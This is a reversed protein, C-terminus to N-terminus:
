SFSFFFLKILLMQWFEDLDCFLCFKHGGKCAEIFSRLAFVSDIRVPLEPDRM